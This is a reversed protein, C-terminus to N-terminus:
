RVLVTPPFDFGWPNDTGSISSPFGAVIRGNRMRRQPPLPLARPPSPSLSLLQLYQLLTFQQVLTAQQLIALEQIQFSVQRQRSDVVNQVDQLSAVSQTASEAASLAPKPAAPLTALRVDLASPSAAPLPAAVRAVEPEANPSLKPATVESRDHAPSVLPSQENARARVRDDGPPSDVESARATAIRQRYEAELRALVDAVSNGAEATHADATKTQPAADPGTAPRASHTASTPEVPKAKSTALESPPSSETRGDPGRSDNPVEPRGGESRV